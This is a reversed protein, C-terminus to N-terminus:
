DINHNNIPPPQRERGPLDGARKLAIMYFYNTAIAVSTEM